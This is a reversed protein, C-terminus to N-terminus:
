KRKTTRHRQTGMPDNIDFNRINEAGARSAGWEMFKNFGKALSSTAGKVKAVRGPTAQKRIRSVISEKKPNKLHWTSERKKIVSAKRHIQAM